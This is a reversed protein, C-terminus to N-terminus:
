SRGGDIVIVGPEAPLHAGASSLRWWIAALEQLEIYTPIDEPYEGDLSTNGSAPGGGIRAAEIQRAM